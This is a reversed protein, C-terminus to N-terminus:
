NTIQDTHHTNAVRLSPACYNRSRWYWTFDVVTCHVVTSPHTIHFISSACLHLSMLDLSMLIFRRDIIVRQLTLMIRRFFTGSFIQCWRNEASCSLEHDGCQLNITAVMRKFRDTVESEKGNAFQVFAAKSMLFETQSCHTAGNADDYCSTTDYVVEGNAFVQTM